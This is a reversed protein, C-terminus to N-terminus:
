SMHGRRAAVRVSEPVVGGPRLDPAPEISGTRDAYRIVGAWVDAAVDVPDDEPWGDSIRLSWRDIPLYLVQTAALEKRTSTRVEGSRGPILRETIADLADAKDDATLVTFSGFLVASRYLLSSEFASRAVVVGDLATVSVAVPIGSALARMWRSGTSGHAVVGERFRAIATPLVMPDDVAVFAIHGVVCCALLGELDARDTSMMEPLRAPTLDM